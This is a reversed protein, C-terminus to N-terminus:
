QIFEIQAPNSIAIQLRGGYDEVMGRLRVTHGTLAEPGPTVNRFARRDESAIVAAFGRRSDASFDLLVRGDRIAAATVRGEVVQFSGADSLPVAGARRLAFAPFAWLGKAGQRAEQEARYFDAACENRDPAIAVRAMGQRLLQTQLWIPNSSQATGFAQVRVRDYRDQKPATAALPLPATMALTRLMRLADDALAPSGRDALPLRIGELLVARGDDLILAGNKEVRVIKARAIEVEGACPPLTAAKAPGLLCIGALILPYLPRM